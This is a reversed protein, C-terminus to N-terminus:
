NWKKQYEGPLLEAIYGFFTRGFVRLVNFLQTKPNEVLHPYLGAAIAERICRRYDPEHEAYDLTILVLQDKTLHEPDLATGHTKEYQEAFM